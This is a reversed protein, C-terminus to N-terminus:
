APEADVLLRDMDVFYAGEFSARLASWHEEDAAIGEYLARPVALRGVPVETDSNVWEMALAGTEASRGRLRLEVEDSLPGGLNRVLALKCLELTVDDLGLDQCVLKERLAAWGFVVRTRMTKGIEQAAKPAGEGFARAFISRASEETDDWDDVDSPPRVLVWLGREADVWTLQPDLRFSEECAPCSYRQYSGDLVAARYHKDRLVNVSFGVHVPVLAERSPCPLRDSIQVSM